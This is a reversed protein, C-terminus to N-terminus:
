LGKSLEKRPHISVIGENIVRPRSIVTAFRAIFRGFACTYAIRHIPSTSHCLKFFNKQDVVVFIQSLSQALLKKHRFIKIDILAVAARRSQFLDLLLTVIKQDQIHTQRVCIPTLQASQDAFLANFAGDHHEGAMICIGVRNQTQIGAGIVIDGLGKFKGYKQGTHARLQALM